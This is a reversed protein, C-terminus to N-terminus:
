AKKEVADKADKIADATTQQTQGQVINGMVFAQQQDGPSSAGAGSNMRELQQQIWKNILDMDIKFGHDEMFKQINKRGAEDNKEVTTEVAGNKKTITAKIEADTMVITAKVCIDAGIEESGVNKEVNITASGQKLNTTITQDSSVTTQSATQKGETQSCVNGGSIKLDGKSDFEIAYRVGDKMAGIKVDKLDNGESMGPAVTVKEYGKSTIIQALDVRNRTSNALAALETIKGTTGKTDIPAEDYKRVQNAYQFLLM